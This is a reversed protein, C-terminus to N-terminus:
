VCLRLGKRKKQRFSPKEKNNLVKVRQPAYRSADSNGNWKAEPMILTQRSRAPSKRFCPYVHTSSEGPAGRRACVVASDCQPLQSLGRECRVGPPPPRSRYDGSWDRWHRTLARGLPTNPISPREFTLAHSCATRSAPPRERLPRSQPTAISRESSALWGNAM